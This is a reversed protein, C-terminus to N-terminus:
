YLHKMPQRLCIRFTYDQLAAPVGPTDFQYHDHWGNYGVVAIKERGTIARALRVAASNADAGTKFFRVMEGGPITDCLLEAVEVEIPAPLSHIIGNALNDQIAQTVAPHNHGLNNAGLGCVYDIYRNGDVDTVEAGEGRALYIPFRGAAFQDPRKMMSQTFGAVCQKAREAIAESQTFDLTASAQNPDISVPANM